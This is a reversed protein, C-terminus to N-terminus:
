EGTHALRQAEDAEIASQIVPDIDGDLVHDLNYAKYGTTYFLLDGTAADSISTAGEFATGDPNGDLLM